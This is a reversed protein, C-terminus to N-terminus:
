SKNKANYTVLQKKTYAVVKVVIFTGDNTYSKDYYEVAEDDTRFNNRAYTFGVYDAGDTDPHAKLLIYTHFEKNESM